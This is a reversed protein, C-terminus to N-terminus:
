MMDSRQCHSANRQLDIPSTQHAFSHDCAHCHQPVVPDLLECQTLFLSQTRAKMCLRGINDPHFGDVDKHLAVNSLVNAESVNPPLPLQVLIGHVDPHYNYCRVAATITAESASAALATQFLRIGVDACAQDKLRVYTATDKRDGVVIVALGPVIGHAKQLHQM